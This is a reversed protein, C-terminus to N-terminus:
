EFIPLNAARRALEVAGWTADARPLVRRALLHARMRPALQLAVSGSLCLPLQGSPDAADALAELARAAADLIGRAVPDEAECDFLVPALAAFETQRAAACWQKFTETGGGISELLARTMPGSSGRGDLAHQVQRVGQKGLWAGSGEDGVVWGWGGVSARTGHSRLVECVSGTGGILVAGPGGGHAGLVAAFSDTDVALLACDPAAEILQEALDRVNAGSVGFGIACQRWSLGELGAREAARAFALDVQEWAQHIGQGLASPGATAESLLEGKVSCLRLRTTTGGGDIGVLWRLDAGPGRRNVHLPLIDADAM